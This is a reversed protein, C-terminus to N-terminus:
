IYLLSVRPWLLITASRRRVGFRNVNISKVGIFEMCGSRHNISAGYICVYWISILLLMLVVSLYLFHFQTWLVTKLHLVHSEARQEKKTKVSLVRGFILKILVNNFIYKVVTGKCVLTFTLLHLHQVLWTQMELTAFESLSLACICIWAFLFFFGDKMWERQACHCVGVSALVWQFLSQKHTGAKIVTPLLYCSFINLLLVSFGM